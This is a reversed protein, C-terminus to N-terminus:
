WKIRGRDCSKCESQGGCEDCLRGDLHAKSVCSHCAPGGSPACECPWESLWEIFEDNTMSGIVPPPTRESSRFTTTQLQPAKIVATQRM